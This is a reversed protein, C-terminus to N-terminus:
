HMQDNPTPVKKYADHVFFLLMRCITERSSWTRPFDTWLARLVVTSHQGFKSSLVRNYERMEDKGYKTMLRVRGPLVTM